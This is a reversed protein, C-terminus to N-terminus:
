EAKFKKPVEELVTTAVGQIKIEALLQDDVNYGLDQMTKGLTYFYERVGTPNSCSNVLPDLGHVILFLERIYSDIKGYNVPRETGSSATKEQPSYRDYTAGLQINKEIAQAFFSLTWDAYEKKTMLEGVFKRLDGNRYGEVRKILKVDQQEWAHESALYAHRYLNFQDRRFMATNGLGVITCYSSIDNTAVGLGFSELDLITSGVINLGNCDNHQFKIKTRLEKKLAQIEAVRDDLNLSRQTLLYAFVKSYSYEGMNTILEPNNLYFLRAMNEKLQGQSSRELFDVDRNYDFSSLLKKKHANCLGAFRAILGVGKLFTEDLQADSESTAARLIMDKQTNGQVYSMVLTFDRESSGEVKPVLNPQKGSPIKVVENLIGLNRKERHFLVGPDHLVFYTPEHGEGVPTYCKAVMRKKKPGKRLVIHYFNAHHSSWSRIMEFETYNCFSTGLAERISKELTTGVSM